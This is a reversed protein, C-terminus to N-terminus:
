MVHLIKINGRFFFHENTIAHKAINIHNIYVKLFIYNTKNRIELIHKFFYTTSSKNYQEQRLSSSTTERTFTEKSILSHEVAM